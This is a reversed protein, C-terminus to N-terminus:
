QWACSLFRRLTPKRSRGGGVAGNPRNQHTGLPQLPELTNQPGCSRYRVAFEVWNSRRTMSNVHRCCQAAPGLRRRSAVEALHPPEHYKLDNHTSEIPPSAPQCRRTSTETAEHNVERRRQRQDTDKDRTTEETAAGHPALSRRAQMAVPSARAVRATPPERRRLRAPGNARAADTGGCIIVHYSSALLRHSVVRVRRRPVFPRCSVCARPPPSARACTHARGSVRLRSPHAAVARLLEAVAARAAATATESGVNTEEIAPADGAGRKSWRSAWDAFPQPWVKRGGKSYNPGRLMEVDVHSPLQGRETATLARAFPAPRPRACFM